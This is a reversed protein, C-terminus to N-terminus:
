AEQCSRSWKLYSTMINNLNYVSVLSVKASNEEKNYYRQVKWRIHKTDSVLVSFSLFGWKLYMSSSFLIEFIEPKACKIDQAWLLFPLPPLLSDHSIHDQWLGMFLRTSQNKMGAFFFFFQFPVTVSFTTLIQVILPSCKMENYLHPTSLDSCIRHTEEALCARM